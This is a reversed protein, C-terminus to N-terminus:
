LVRFLMRRCKTASMCLLNRFLNFIYCRQSLLTIGVGGVCIIVKLMCIKLVGVRYCVFVFSFSNKIYEHESSSVVNQM